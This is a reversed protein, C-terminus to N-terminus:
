KSNQFRMILRCYNEVLPSRFRIKEKPLKVEPATIRRFIHDIEEQEFVEKDWRGIIEEIEDLHGFCIDEQNLCTFANDGGIILVPHIEHLEPDKDLISQFIQKQTEQEYRVNVKKMNLTESDFWCYNGESDIGSPENSTRIVFPMIGSKSILIADIECNIDENTLRTDFLVKGGSQRAFRLLVKRLREKKSLQHKMQTKEARWNRITAVFQKIECDIDVEESEALNRYKSVVDELTYDMKDSDDGFAHCVVSKKAQKLNYYQDKLSYAPRFYLQVIKRKPEETNDIM